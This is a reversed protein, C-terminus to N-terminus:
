KVPKTRKPELLEVYSASKDTYRPNGKDDFDLTGDYNGVPGPTWFYRHESNYRLEKGDFPDKPIEISPDLDAFSDPWKGHQLRYLKFAIRMRTIRLRFLNRSTYINFALVEKRAWRSGLWNQRFCEKWGIDSERKFDKVGTHILAGLEARSLGDNVSYAAYGPFLRLIRCMPHRPWRIQGDSPKYLDHGFREDRSHSAVDRDTEVIRELLERLWCTYDDGTFSVNSARLFVVNAYSSWLLYELRGFNKGAVGLFRLATSLSERAEELRGSEVLKEINDCYATIAAFVRFKDEFPIHHYEGSAGQYKSIHGMYEIAKDLSEGQIRQSRAFSAKCEEILAQVNQMLAMEDNSKDQQRSDTAVSERGMITFYCSVAGWCIVAALLLNLFVKKM